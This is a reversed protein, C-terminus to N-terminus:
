FLGKKNNIKKNKKNKKKNNVQRLNDEEEVKKVKKKINEGLLINDGGLEQYLSLAECIKINFKKLEEIEKNFNIDHYLEINWCDEKSKLTFFLEQNADIEVVRQGVLSRSIFKRVATSIRIKDLLVNPNKNFYESVKIKTDNDIDQKYLLNMNEKFQNFCLLEFYEYVSLIHSITFSSNQFLNKTDENIKFYTPFDMFTEKIEINKDSYITRENYFTIMLQITFLIKIQSEPSDHEISFEYLKQKQEDNLLRQPYNFNFKILISSNQNRFGEFQYIVYDIKDTLIKKGPLLLNELQEEIEELNYKIRDKKSYDLNYNQDFSDKYSYFLIMELFSGYNEQQVDFSLINFVNAKQPDIKESIKRKLYDLKYNDDPIDNIVNNLFNNQFSSFKQYLAALQIGYNFEENDILFNSLSDNESFKRLELYKTLDECEYHDAIKYLEKDNFAKLFDVFYGRPIVKAHIEDKIKIIKADKRSINNTYIEITSNVFKNIQPFTQLYEINKKNTNLYHYLVPYKKKANKKSKLIENLQEEQIIPISLLDYYYPYELEVEVSPNKDENELIIYKPDLNKPKIKKIIEEYKKSKESYNDIAKKVISNMENEFENREEVEKMNGSQIILNIMDNFLINLFIQTNLKDENKIKGLAKTLLIWNTNLIEIIDNEDKIGNNRESLLEARYANYFCSDKEYNGKYPEEKLPVLKNSKIEELTLFGLKYSFYINSYIIFNLIRYSIQNLNRVKKDESAFFLYSPEFIGKYDKNERSEMEQKFDKFLQNPYGKEFNEGYIRKLDIRSEVKKKNEENPYIRKIKYEGNDEERKILEQRIGGIEKHCNACRSISTPVGCWVQFYYEGCDCIYYGNCYGSSHVLSIPQIMNMYGEITLDCYLDSGPIYSNNIIELCNEDIMKSFISNENSISCLISFRYAYLLIEFYETKAIINSLLKFYVEQNFFLNILKKTSNKYKKEKNIYNNFSKILSSYKYLKLGDEKKLVSLFENIFLDINYLFTIDTLDYYNNSIKNRKERENLFDKEKNYGGYFLYKLSGQIEGDNLKELKLNNFLNKLNYKEAWSDVNLFQTREKIYKTKLEKLIFLKFSEKIETNDQTLFNIREIKRSSILTVQSVAYKVFNELFVNCYVICFIEKINKNPIDSQKSKKIDILTTYANRFYKFAEKGLYLDIENKIKTEKDAKENEDLIALKEFYQMIKFKFIYKLNEELIKSMKTGNIKQLLINKEASKIFPNNENESDPDLSEPDFNFSDLIHIFFENSIIILENDELVLDCLIGRCNIDIVEKYKSIIIKMITKTKEECNPLTEKLLAFQNTIEKSVEKMKNEILMKRENKVFKIYLNVKEKDYVKKEDCLKISIFLTKFRYFDKSKLKLNSNYIEGNQVIESLYKIIALVKGGNLSEILELLNFFLSDFILLFPKDILKRHLPNHKSEIYKIEQSEIKQKVKELFDIEDFIDKLIGFIRLLFIFEDKYIHTWLLSKSYYFIPNNDLIKGFRLEILYKLIDIYLSEENGIISTIFQSYYDKFFYNLLEVKNKEDFSKIFIDKEIQNKIYDIVKNDPIFFKKIENKANKYKEDELNNNENEFFEKILQKKEQKQEEDEEDDDEDEDYDIIEEPIDCNRITREQMLYDNIYGNNDNEILKKIQNISNYSPLNLKTWVKIKNSKLNNNVNQTFVFENLLKNWISKSCEPLNKSISSLINQKESNIIFKTLYQIFKEELEKSLISIFDKNLDFQKNEFINDFINNKEKINHIEQNEKKQIYQIKEIEDIIRKKITKALNSDNLINEIIRRIHQNQKDQDLSIDQFIYNIKQFSYYLETKFIGDLDILNTNEYLEKINQNMLESILLNAGFLNDIFTQEFSSLNPVFIDKNFEKIFEKNSDDKEKKRKLHNLIIIMKKNIGNLENEKEFRELFIIIFELNQSDEEEFHILLIKNTSEYFEMVEMEFQRESKILNVCISKIEEGKIEGFNENKTKFNFKMSRGTPTFTYIVNLSNSTKEIFAKLNSHVSQSYYYNIKEIFDQHNKKKYHNIFAILEQPLTKSINKFIYNFINDETVDNPNESQLDYNSILSKIEEDYFNILENEFNYKSKKTKKFVKKYDLIKNAIEKSKSNLLNEFSIIYKEFRNLFPPDQYKVADERILVIIKLNNNIYTSNSVEGLSIEAFKQNKTYTFRQNFLDYLSSYTTSLNKLILVIEHELYFRIKNIAKASYAENYVDDDFLSGLYYFYKKDLTKLMQMILYEGLNSKMILLLYRSDVETINNKICSIIGFEEKEVFNAEPYLKIFENKIWVVPNVGNRIIGNYNSEIAFFAPMIGSEEKNGKELIKKTLTKILNYFDRTGHFNKQEANTNKLYYNYNFVAKTLKEILTSYDKSFKSDYINTIKLATDTMQRYDSIPNIVNLYIGRNMKAADLKWNSIGVFALKKEKDQNQYDIELKTHLAKLPNSPSIECLGIEDIFVCVIVGLPKKIQFGMIEEKQKDLQTKQNNRENFDLLKKEADKFADIIGKSTSTLSGQYSTVILQPYNKWYKSKSHSGKMEKKLLNFCLSKSCGPPGVLFVAIRTLIGIFIIFLNLRLSDNAAIGEEFKINKILEDQLQTPYQLFDINLIDGLKIIFEDKDNKKSLRIYYCIYIAAAISYKQTLIENKDLYFKYDYEDSCDAREKEDKKNYDKSLKKKNEFDKILFKYITMFKRTERMSVSEKGNKNRIFEQATLFSQIILNKVEDLINKNNIYEGIEAEVIGTIYRKENDSSLSGFNFIYYLQTYTLPNVTYVLQQIANKSNEKILVDNSELLENTIKRYPNCAGAFTVNKKVNVGQCKKYCMIETLLGLSNCTNFEDFFVIILKYDNINNNNLQNKNTKPEKNSINSVSVVGSISMSDQNENNFLNEVGNEDLDYNIKEELLDHRVMFQVIENDNIGAHINLTFMKYECIEVIANILSTKGCGTEGMILVPIGTRFRILIQVMKFFNDANFVYSGLKKIIEKTNKQSGILKKIIEIFRENEVMSIYDPIYNHIAKESQLKNTNYLSDLKKYVESEKPACTIITFSQGDENICVLGKDNLEKFDIIIEEESLIKNAKELEEKQNYDSSDSIKSISSNQKQIIKDFAGVTFYTTLDMFAQIIDKRIILPTKSVKLSEVMLYNDSTFKRLQEALVKIYIYIQHYSKNEINFYKNILDSCENETIYKSDCYIDYFRNNVFDPDKQYLGYFFLNKNEMDDYFKLYNCVMQIDSKYLYNHNLESIRKDIEFLSLNNEEDYQMDEFDKFSDEKELLEFPPLKEIFHNTFEKFLKFKQILDFFGNPIEIYIKVNDEYCFIDENNSYAKLILFSFFFDEFLEIQNTDSFDLHLGYKYKKNIKLEKLRRMITQRKVEGGIQFPIYIREEQKCQKQIYFTKGLGAMRSAVTEIHNYINNNEDEIKEKPDEAQHCINLLERGIESKGIESFLFLIYSKIEIKDEYFQEIINEVEYIIDNNLRDPKVMIFLSHFPCYVALYIFAMIEELTTEENCLLISYRPPLKGVFYHYFKLIYKYISNGANIIFFGTYNKDSYEEKIRSDEFINEEKIENLNMIEELYKEVNDYMDNMITELEDKNGIKMIQCLNTSSSIKIINDTSQNESITDLYGEQSNTDIDIDNDYFNIVNTSLSSRYFFNDPAKKYKNRLIYRILNSVEINSFSGIKGKLYENFITLQQSYYFKLFKKNKYAERQIINMDKLLNKLSNKEEILKKTEKSQANRNKCDSEGNNIKIEYSFKHPFGKSTIKSIILLIDKINEILDIFINLTKNEEKKEKNQSLSALQELVILEKLTKVVTKQKFICKCNYGFDFSTKDDIYFIEFISKEIIERIEEKSSEFGKRNEFLVLLKPQNKASKEFIPLFHKMEMGGIKSFRIINLLEVDNEKEINENEGNKVSKELLLTIFSKISQYNNIDIIDLSSGALSNTIDRLDDITLELLFKLLSNEQLKNVVYSTIDIPIIKLDLKKEINQFENIIINIKSINEDLKEEKFIEEQSKDKEEKELDLISQNLEILKNYFHTKNLQLTQIIDIFGNITKKTILKRLKFSLYKEIISTDEEYKFYTKLKNIEDIMENDNSFLLLFENIFNNDIENITKESLINKLNIIKNELIKIKKEEKEVKNELDSLFISATKGLEKIKNFKQARKYLKDLEYKFNKDNLSNLFNQLVKESDSIKRTITKKLKANENSSFEDLYEKCIKLSNKNDLFLNLKSDIEKYYDEKGNEDLHLFEIKEDFLNKGILEKMNELQKLTINNLKFNKVFKNVNEKSNKYFDSNKIEKFEESDNLINFVKFSIKIENSQKFFDGLEINKKIYKLLIKPNKHLSDRLFNNSNNDSFSFFHNLIYETEETNLKNRLDESFLLEKFIETLLLSNQIKAIQKIFEFSENNAHNEKLFLLMEIFPKKDKANNSEDNFLKWFKSIHLLIISKDNFNIYGLTNWLIRSFDNYRALKAFIILYLENKDKNNSFTIKSLIIKLQDLNNDSITLFDINMLCTELIEKLSTKNLQIINIDILNKIIENNDKCTNLLYISIEKIINDKPNITIIAKKLIEQQEYNLLKIYNPFKDKFIQTDIIINGKNDKLINIIRFLIKDSNDFKKNKCLSNPFIYIMNNKLININNEILDLYDKYDDINSIFFEFQLPDYKLLDLFYIKIQPIYNIYMKIDDFLQKMILNKNNLNDIFSLVEKNTQRKSTKILSLILLSWIKPSIEDINQYKKFSNYLKVVKASFKEDINFNTIKQMNVLNFINKLDPYNYNYLYAFSIIENIQIDKTNEIYIKEFQNKWEIENKDKLYEIYSDFIIFHEEPSEADFLYYEKKSNEFVISKTYIIIKNDKNGLNINKSFQQSKFNITININEYYVPFKVEYIYGVRYITKKSLIIRSYTYSTFQFTKKKEVIFKLNDKDHKFIPKEFQDKYEKNIIINFVLTKNINDKFINNDEKYEEKNTKGRRQKKKKKVVLKNNKNKNDIENNENIQNPNNINSNENSQQIDNEINQNPSQLIEFEDKLEKISESKPGNLSTAEVEKNNQVNENGEKSENIKKLEQQSSANKLPNENIATNNIVKNDNNENNLSQNTNITMQSNNSQSSDNTTKNQINNNNESINSNNISKLKIYIYPKGDSNNILDDILYNEELDEGVINDGDVFEYDNNIIKKPDLNRLEKLNKEKDVKRLANFVKNNHKLCIRLLKIEKEM